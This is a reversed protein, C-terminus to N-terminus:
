YFLSNLLDWVSCTMSAVRIQPLIFIIKNLASRQLVCIKQILLQKVELSIAKDHEDILSISLRECSDNDLKLHWAEEMPLQINTAVSNSIISIVHVLNQILLIFIQMLFRQKWSMSISKVDGVVVNRIGHEQLVM